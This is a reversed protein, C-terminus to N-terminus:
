LHQHLKTQARLFVRDPLTSPPSGFRKGAPLPELYDKAISTSRTPRQHPRSLSLLFPTLRQGTDAFSLCSSPFPCTLTQILVHHSLLRFLVYVAFGGLWEDKLIKKPAIFRDDIEARLSEKTLVEALSLLELLDSSSRANTSSPKPLHVDDRRDSSSM